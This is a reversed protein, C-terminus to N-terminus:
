TMPFFTSFQFFAHARCSPSPPPSLAPLRCSSLTTTRLQFSPVLHLLVAAVVAVFFVSASSSQQKDVNRLLQVRSSWWNGIDSFDSFELGQPPSPPPSPWPPLQHTLHKPIRTNPNRSEHFSDSDASLVYRTSPVHLHKKMAVDAVIPVLCRRETRSGEDNPESRKLLRASFQM